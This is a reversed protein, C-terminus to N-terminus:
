LADQLQQRDIASFRYIRNAFYFVTAALAAVATFAMLSNKHRFAWSNGVNKQLTGVVQDKKGSWQMQPNNTAKGLKERAVGKVQNLTGAATNRKGQLKTDLNKM